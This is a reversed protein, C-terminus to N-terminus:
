RNFNGKGPGKTFNAQQYSGKRTFTSPQRYGKGKLASPLQYDLKEYVERQWFLLDNKIEQLSTKLSKGLHM